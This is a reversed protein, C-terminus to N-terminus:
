RLNLTIIRFVYDRQIIHNDTFIVLSNKLHAKDIEQRM